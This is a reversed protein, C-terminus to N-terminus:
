ETKSSSSVSLDFRLNYGTTLQFRGGVKEFYNLVPNIAISLKNLINLIYTIVLLKYNFLTYHIIDNFFNLTDNKIIQSVILHSIIQHLPNRKDHYIFCLVYMKSVPSSALSLFFVSM